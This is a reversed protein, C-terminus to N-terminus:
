SPFAEVTAALPVDVDAAWDAAYSPITRKDAAPPLFQTVRRGTVWATPTSRPDTNGIATRVYSGTAGFYSSDGWCQDDSPTKQDRYFETTAGGLNSQSSTFTTRLYIRGQPGDVAEWTPLNTSIADSRGDIAVGGPKTSSRYTMGQAAASFDVFDMIAPIPHVRLNTIVDQRDRYMLHTRQTLPGSNAGVYSRIARVPGDINAVFAGEASAFTQNSRTCDSTAFQNKHGDLVDVQSAGPALVKWSVEKWRDTFSISYASTTVKSTEPNTGRARKYTAKYDGSTLAFDFDVYDEGAAPDLGGTSRYLYVAGRENTSRPDTVTVQTGSSAVVGEPAATGDPAAGGADSAMFVVEDDADVKPNPDPGVWTTPDAYQLGTPGGTGNGYVSGVTGPTANSSPETGFPVVKRQDVQVPVQEWRGSSWRFAVVRESAWGGLRNLKSGTLVVPAAPRTLTSKTTDCGALLTAALGGALGAVLLRRIPM